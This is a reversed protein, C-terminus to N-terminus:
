FVKMKIRSFHLHLLINSGYLSIPWSRAAEFRNFIPKKAYIIDTKNETPAVCGVYM